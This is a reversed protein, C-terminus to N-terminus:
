VLSCNRKFNPELRSTDGDIEEIRRDAQEALAVVYPSADQTYKKIIQRLHAKAQVEAPDM